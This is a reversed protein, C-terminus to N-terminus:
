APLRVSFRAGAGAASEVAVSGGMAETLQKVIALGLGSGVGSDGGLRRYLHFREFARPLDEAALGAGTDAVVVLGPEASVTVRGGSPTARLANEVLNSIVQAVRDADGRAPARGPGDAVLEVGRQAATPAHRRVAEAAADALDIPERRVEFAHQDLRALDLLDHVLRDLRASEAGIVRAAEGPAVAGDGVAEAYGRIATLPTKLEHSVSLLFSREHERAAALQSQMDNFSAALSAVERPGEVPVQGPSEGAAMRRSAAAVRDIPRSLARALVVSIVAALAAGVLGAILFSDLFPGWDARRLRGPRALVLAQAGIPRAAYVIAGTTGQSGRGARLAAVADAPLLHAAQSQAVLLVRFQRGRVRQRFRPRALFGSGAADVRGALFDAQRGLNAVISQRVAHRTLLAGILLSAGVSLVVTAAVAVFLRRRLTM